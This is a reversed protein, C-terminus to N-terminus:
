LEDAFVHADVYDGDVVIHEGVRSPANFSLDHFLEEFVSKLGRAGTDTELAKKVIAQIGDTTYSLKIDEFDFLEAYEVQLSDPPETIIRALESESLTDLECLVPLRGLLEKVLGYEELDKVKIRRSSKMQATEGMYGIDSKVRGRKIDGFTGACIFLINSVDVPVFDHKNWHQTINIPAFVRNSELLKLIGQQVGEGGIDRGSAGTMGSGSRRAIKDVEDIFVIGRETACLDGDAAFLLESIMVEVDKGYYGAETYETANVVAIPLCLNKALTRALHTKGCGTPGIMLVNSKRMSDSPNMIRKMHNYAAIAMTKKAHEQGIVYENLGEYIERPTTDLVFPEPAAMDDPRPPMPAYKPKV